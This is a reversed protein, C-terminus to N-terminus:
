KQAPAAGAPPSGAPAAGAPAGGQGGGGGPPGQLGFNHFEEITFKGDCNVDIGDPPTEDLMEQRTVYDKKSKETFMNFSEIPAGAKLYEEKTMKGDKNADISDAMPSADGKMKPDDYPPCTKKATAGAKAPSSPASGQAFAFAGTMVLCIITFFVTKRISM